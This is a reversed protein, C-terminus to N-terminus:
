CSSLAPHNERHAPIGKYEGVSRQGGRREGNPLCKRTLWNLNNAADHHEREDQHPKEDGEHHNTGNGM